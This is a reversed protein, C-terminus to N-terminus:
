QEDDTDEKGERLMKEVKEMTKKMDDAGTEILELAKDIREQPSLVGIKGAVAEIAQQQAEHGIHTYFKDLIECDDGLISQVVSRPIGAEACHSAFSHRLSHFGYVTVAKKRGDVNISPKLGIWRIVRLVDIDVLGSGINKGRSDVKNYREAVHPCIYGHEDTRWEKAVLLCEYLQPAMPITVEKGTKFQKCEVKRATMDVKPWRLLVCDKLRQGTYIGLYYITKIELKNILKHKPDDLAALLKMEEEHTFSMRRVGMDREERTSRLLSKSEFPNPNGQMYESLVKFIKRLRKIKRNHTDVAYEKNKKMDEAFKLADKYGITHLEREPDHLFACFDNFTTEYAQQESVTTPMARDPSLTYEKWADKLRLTISQGARKLSVAVQTVLEKEDIATLMPLLKKYEKVAQTYDDTQLNVNKRRGNIQYRLYFNGGVKTQYITGVEMKQSIIEDPMKKRGM